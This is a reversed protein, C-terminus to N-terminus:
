VWCLKEQDIDTETWTYTCWPVHLLQKGRTVYRKTTALYLAHESVTWVRDIGVISDRKYFYFKLNSTFLHEKVCQCSGQSKGCSSTVEPGPSSALLEQQTGPLCMDRRGESVGASLWSTVTKQTASTAYEGKDSVCDEWSSNNGKIVWHKHTVEPIKDIFLLLLREKLTENWRKLKSFM